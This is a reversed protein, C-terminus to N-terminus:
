SIAAGSREAGNMEGKENKMHRATNKHRCAKEKCICKLAYWRQDHKSRALRVYSFAGKGIAKRDDLFDFNDVGMSSSTLSSSGASKSRRIINNGATRKMRVAAKVIIGARKFRAKARSSAAASNTLGKPQGRKITSGPSSEGNNDNRKSRRQTVGLAPSSFARQPRSSSSSSSTSNNQSRSSGNGAATTSSKMTSSKDMSEVKYQSNKMSGHKQDRYSASSKLKTGRISPEPKVIEGPELVGLVYNDNVKSGGCGM